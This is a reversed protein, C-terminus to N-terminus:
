DRRLKPNPGSLLGDPDIDEFGSCLIEDWNHDQQTCLDVESENEMRDRAKNFADTVQDSTVKTYAEQSSLSAHHLAKKIIVPPLGARRMRQSYSHRHGHTSRGEPKSPTQDIRSLAAEYNSNLANLSYPEGFNNSEYSIFAYPHHREIPALYRVHINWLKLFVEGALPAFWFVQIYNDPHDVVKCKWGVRQSGHIRNRATLGYKRKLYAARKEKRTRKRVDQPAVGEEPHYIKVLAAKPNRPDPKVDGVWIHLPESARCGGADLLLLILRDRIICRVDRTGGFGDLYMQQFLSRPFEPVVSSSMVLRGQPRMARVEQLMVSPFQRGIHGLFNQNNKKLWAAFKLKEDHSSAKVMPNPTQKGLKRSAFDFFDNLADIIRANVDASSPVWGLGSPDLGDDGITGSYLHSKFGAFVLEPDKCRYPNAEIYEIMVKAARVVRLKWADSMGANEVLYETLLRVDGNAGLLIPMEYAVGTEDIVIKAKIKVVTM